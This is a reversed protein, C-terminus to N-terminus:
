QWGNAIETAEEEQSLSPGVQEVDGFSSGKSGASESGTAESSSAGTTGESGSDDGSEGGGGSAGGAEGGGEGEGEGEGSGSDALAQSLTLVTPPVYSVEQALGLRELAKRRAADVSAAEVTAPDIRHHVLAASDVPGHSSPAEVHWAPTYPLVRVSVPAAVLALAVVSTSALLRLSRRLQRTSM